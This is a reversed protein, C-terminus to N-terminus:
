CQCPINTLARKKSDPKTHARTKHSRINARHNHASRSAPPALPNQQPSELPFAPSFAAECLISGGKEAACGPHPPGGGHGIGPLGTCMQCNLEM